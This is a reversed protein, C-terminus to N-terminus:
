KKEAEKEAPKVSCSLTDADFVKAKDKDCDDKLKSVLTNANLAAKEIQASIELGQARLQFYERRAREAQVRLEDISPKAPEAAFAVAGLLLALLPTFKIM